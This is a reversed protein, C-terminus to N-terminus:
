NCCAVSKNKLALTERQDNTFELVWTVEGTYHFWITFEYMKNKWTKVNAAHIAKAATSTKKIEDRRKRGAHKHKKERRRASKWRERQPTPLSPSQSFWCSVDPPTMEVQQAATLTNAATNEWLCGRSSVVDTCGCNVKHSNINGALHVYESKKKYDSHLCIIVIWVSGDAQILLSARCEIQTPQIKLYVTHVSNNSM